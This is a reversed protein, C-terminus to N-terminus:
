KKLFKFPRLLAKGLKLSYGNKIGELTSEVAQLEIIYDRPILQTFNTDKITASLGDFDNFNAVILDIHKIKLDPHSFCRINFDWDAVIKFELNFKGLRKFLEKTCFISQHCINKEKMLIHRTYKGGWIRNSHVFFTDGYVFDFDQLESSVTELVNENYFSDDSGLFYLWGGTAKDIGKNMADYVGSDKESFIKIRAENFSQAIALTNDTSEADMVLIEFDTFSQKLASQIAKELTKGSNYTPIIISFKPM